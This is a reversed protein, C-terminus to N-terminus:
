DPDRDIETAAAFPAPRPSCGVLKTQLQPEPGLALELGAVPLPPPQLPQIDDFPPDPWPSNCAAAAFTAAGAVPAAVVDVAAACTRGAVSAEAPFEEEAVTDDSPSLIDVVAEAAAPDEAVVSGAPVPPSHCTETEPAEEAAAEVALDEAQLREQHSNREVEAASQQKRRPLDELFEPTDALLSDEQIDAASHPRPQQLSSAAEEVAAAGFATSSSAAVAVALEDEAVVVVLDRDAAFAAVVVAARSNDAVPAM